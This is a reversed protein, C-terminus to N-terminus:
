LRKGTVEGSVMKLFQPSAVSTQLVGERGEAVRRWFSHLVDHKCDVTFHYTNAPTVCLWIPTNFSIQNNVFKIM